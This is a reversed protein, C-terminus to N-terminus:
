GGLAHIAEPEREGELAQARRKQLLPEDADGVDLLDDARAEAPLLVHLAGVSVIRARGRVHLDRRRGLGVRARRGLRRRRRVRVRVRVRARVRVRLHRQASARGIDEELPELALLDHRQDEAFPQV